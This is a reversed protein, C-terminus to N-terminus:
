RYVSSSSAFVLHQARVARCVQLINAFAMLNIDTYDDPADISHRVGAQAALHLVRTPRVRAFLAAVAARDALDLREFRFGPYACLRALRAEKLRVDYYANLNDVGVVSEGRELLKQACHMGIFGACGTLVIM